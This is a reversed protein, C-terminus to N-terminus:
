ANKGVQVSFIHHHLYSVCLKALKESVLDWQAHSPMVASGGFLSLSLGQLLSLPLLTVSLLTSLFLFFAHKCLEVLRNWSCMLQKSENRFPLNGEVQRVKRRGRRHRWFRVLTTAPVGLLNM